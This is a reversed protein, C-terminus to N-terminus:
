GEELDRLSSLMKEGSAFLPFQTRFPCFGKKQQLFLHPLMGTGKRPTSLTVQKNIPRVKLDREIIHHKELM